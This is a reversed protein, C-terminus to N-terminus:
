SGRNQIEEEAFGSDRVGFLGAFFDESTGLGGAPIGRKPM